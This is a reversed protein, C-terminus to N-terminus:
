KMAQKIINGTKCAKDSIQADLPKRTSSSGTWFPLEACRAAPLGEFSASRLQLPVAFLCRISSASILRVLQLSSTSPAPATPVECVSGVDACCYGRASLQLYNKRELSDHRVNHENEAETRVVAWGRTIWESQRLTSHLYSRTIAHKDRAKLILDNGVDLLPQGLPKVNWHYILLIHLHPGQQKSESSM